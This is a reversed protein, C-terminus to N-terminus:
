SGREEQGRPSSDDRHFPTTLATDSYTVLCSSIRRCTTTLHFANQNEFSCSGSKPRACGLPYGTLWHPQELPASTHKRYSFHTRARRVTHNRCKAAVQSKSSRIARQTSHLAHARRYFLSNEPLLVTHAPLPKCQVLSECMRIMLRLSLSEEERYMGACRMGAWEESGKVLGYTHLGM